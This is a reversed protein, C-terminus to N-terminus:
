EVELAVFIVNWLKRKPDSCFIEAFCVLYLKNERSRRLGNLNAAHKAIQDTQLFAQCYTCMSAKAASLLASCLLLEAQVSAQTVNGSLPFIVTEIILTIIINEPM